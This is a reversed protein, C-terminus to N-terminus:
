ATYGCDFLGEETPNPTSGTSISPGPINRVSGEKADRAEQTVETTLDDHVRGELEEDLARAFVIGIGIGTRLRRAAGSIGRDRGRDRGRGRSDGIGACTGTTSKTGRLTVEKTVLAPM